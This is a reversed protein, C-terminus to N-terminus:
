IGSRLFDSVLMTRRRDWRDVFVGALMGFLLRPLTFSLMMGSVAYTTAEVDDSFGSVIVTMALFAFYDGIQSVIQGLWLNRFNANRLITLYNVNQVASQTQADAQGPHDPTPTQPEDAHSM